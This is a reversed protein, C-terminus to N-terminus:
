AAVATHQSLVAAIKRWGDIRRLRIQGSAVLSFLMVLAADESPLSGQTKVRRRFEEHLREITNTTRLTKWQARPRYRLSRRFSGRFRPRNEPRPPYTGAFPSLAIWQLFQLLINPPGSNGVLIWMKWRVIEAGSKVPEHKPVVIRADHQHEESESRQEKRQTRVMRNCDAPRAASSVRGLLEPGLDIVAAIEAAVASGIQSRQDHGVRPRARIEYRLLWQRSHRRDAGGARCDRWRDRLTERGPTSGPERQVNVRPGPLGASGRPDM